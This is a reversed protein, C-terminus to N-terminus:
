LYFEKAVEPCVELFLRIKGKLRLIRKKVCEESKGVKESIAKYTYGIFYRMKLMEEDEADILRNNRLGSLIDEILWKNSKYCIQKDAAQYCTNPKTFTGIELGCCIYRNEDKAFKWLNKKLYGQLFRPFSYISSLEIKFKGLAEYLSMVGIQYLDELDLRSLSNSKRREQHIMRLILKEILFLIYLFYESEGTRQFDKIYRELDDSFVTNGRRNSATNM